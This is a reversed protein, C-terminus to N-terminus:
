KGLCFKEFIRDIVQSDVTGGTIEGLARWAERISPTALDVPMGARLTAMADELAVRATRVAQVHRANSMLMDEPAVAQADWLALVAERLAALGEGTVSSIPIAGAGLGEPLRPALDAKTILTLHPMARVRDLLAAEEEGWPETGDLLLLAMQAEELAQLARDVGLREVDDQTQRIGATDVLTLPLGGLDVPVELTDRTTGAVPTVIARDRGCLANLLSSKGANPRGLLVCRIGERYLAGARADRLLGELTKAMDGLTELLAEAVTDELDEEPFDVTVEVQAITDLLRERLDEIARGLRGRLQGLAVQASAQTQASILDMVAEARSLELRGHLFARKTFEGPQAPRAGALLAAELVAAATVGGGHCHFEVTDEGTYSHGRRMYVALGEDVPREGQVFAGFLMHHSAPPFRKWGRPPRFARELVRLAEPGSVRIVAVGGQGPPTAIAAITDM